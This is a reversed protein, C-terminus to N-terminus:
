IRFEKYAYNKQWKEFLEPDVRYLRGLRIAPFGPSRVIRYATKKSINLRRSVDDVNLFSEKSNM